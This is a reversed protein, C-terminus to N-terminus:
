KKIKIIEDSEKVEKGTLLDIESFEASNCIIIPTIVDYGAKEIEAKDFEVLLDGPAVKDGAKAHITFHKGQLNVTDLGVHIILEVGDDSVLTLAHGTDFVSNVTGSVPSVVRQGIPRIAMTKGLLQESFTPDNIESAPVATGKLPSLITIEKNDKGFLGKVKGFM